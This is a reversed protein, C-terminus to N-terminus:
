RALVGGVRRVAGGLDIQDLGLCVFPRKTDTQTWDGEVTPNGSAQTLCFDTGYQFASLGKVAGDDTAQFGQLRSNTGTMAQFVLRYFTDAALEHPSAFIRLFTAASTLGRIDKDMSVTELVTTGDSDYLKADMDGDMDMWFMFEALRCAYPFKFRLGYRDPSSGSNYLWSASITSGMLGPGTELTGDDYQFAIDPQYTTLAWGGINSLNYPLGIASYLGAAGISLNGNVYSDFEFVVAVLDGNTVSVGSGSNIPVWFRAYPSPMFTGYANAVYLNGTPFGTTADITQLSIKLTDAQTCAVISLGIKTLTGTKPIHCIGAAMEGAADMVPYSSFYWQTRDFQASPVWQIGQLSTLSM